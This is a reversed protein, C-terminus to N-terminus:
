SHTIMVCDSAVCCWWVTRIPPKECDIKLGIGCCALASFIYFMGAFILMGIGEANANLFDWFNMNLVGRNPKPKYNGEASGCKRM